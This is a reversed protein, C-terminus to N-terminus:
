PLMRRLISDKIFFHHYLAAGIHACLLGILTFALISHTDEFFDGWEKNEHGLAPITFFGYFDIPYNGLYSMLFGATPILIMLAYLAYHVLDAAKNQWHPLSPNPRPVPNALRWFLRSLGLFLVVLGTAKHIGYLKWKDASPELDAMYLGVCLLVIIMFAMLWHFTKALWGFTQDTNKLM